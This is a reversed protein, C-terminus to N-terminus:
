PVKANKSNREAKMLAIIIEINRNIGAATTIKREEVIVFGKERLKVLFYRAIATRVGLDRLLRNAPNTRRKKVKGVLRENASMLIRRCNRYTAERYGRM